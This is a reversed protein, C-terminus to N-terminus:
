KILNSNILSNIFAPNIGTPIEEGEILKFEKNCLIKTTKLAVYKKEENKSVNVDLDESSNIKKDKKGM